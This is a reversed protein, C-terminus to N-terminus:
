DYDKGQLNALIGFLLYITAKDLMGNSIAVASLILAISTVISFFFKM